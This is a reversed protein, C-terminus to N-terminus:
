EQVFIIHVHSPFDNLVSEIEMEDEIMDGRRYDNFADFVTLKRKVVPKKDESNKKSM